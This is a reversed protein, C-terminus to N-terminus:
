GIATPNPGVQSGSNEASGDRGRRGGAHLSYRKRAAHGMYSLKAEKRYLRCEWDM